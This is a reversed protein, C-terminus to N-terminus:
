GLQVSTWEADLARGLERIAVQLADDVTTTVQIQQSIRNIMAEQDAQIQTQEFIRRSQVTPTVLDILATLIEVEDQTYEHSQEWNFIILGVRQGAQTLPVVTMARTGGQEMLARTVEDIREDKSLDSVFLPAQSDSIWLNAFPMDPLYFRTGVPVPSEGEGRWNAVVEAWTPDGSRDVDLYILNASYAGAQIAPPIVAQLIEDDDRAENLRQSITYLIDTRELATRTQEVLLQNQIVAAAQDTLSTIQRIEDDSLDLFDESMAVLGGISRDAVRLPFTAAGKVELVDLFLQRIPENDWDANQIDPSIYPDAQALIFTVPYDEFALTTGVPAHASVGEALWSGAVTIEEPPNDQEWPRNYLMLGVRKMHKLATTEVLADLVEQPSAAKAILDSTMYLNETMALAVQTQGFLCRSQVVPTVLSMLANYISIERQGFPHVKSWGFTILGYWRGAQVLPIVAIAQYDSQAWIGKITDAINEAKAIDPILQPEHPHELFYATSPYDALDLQFGVPLVPEGASLWNAVITMKAPTESEDYDIYMLTSDKCGAAKAPGLVAHLIEEESAAINLAEGIQYLEQTQELAAETQASLRLNEIQTSLQQNIEALMNQDQQSLEALGAIGIQGIAQGRVEIDFAIQESPAQDGAPIPKVKRGDYLYGSSAQTRVTSWGQRTLRQLAEQAEQRYREARSLLRLNEIQQSLQRSVSEVLETDEPSWDEEAQLQFAGVKQGMVEISASLTNQEPAQSLPAETELVQEQDFAYTIHESTEIADLYERWGEYSLRSAQKALDQQASEVQAFLSANLIAIALQGALAEFAPLNVQNLAGMQSSQMDLVGVVEDGVVLPVAMESRTDPLLPNPQHISSKQTDVVLVARQELAARGNISAASLPLRHGGRLLSKGAEGTGARLVLYRSQRDVLYIQTYYLDFRERILEVAESLVSETDRVLALRQGIEAALALDATASKVRQELSASLEQLEDSYVKVEALRQRGVYNRFVTGLILTVGLPLIVGLTSFMEMTNIAPTLSPLILLFAVNGSVLLVVGNIPMLAAGVAFALPLSAYLATAVNSGGFIVQAFGSASVAGTFVALGLGYYRTRIIIYSIFIAIMLGMMSMFPSTNIGQTQSITALGILSLIFISLSLTASFMATRQAGIEEISPHAAVLKYGSQM